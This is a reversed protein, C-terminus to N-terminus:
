DVAITETNFSNDDSSGTNQNIESKDEEAKKATDGGFYSKQKILLIFVGVTIASDAINFIPSFFTFPGIVPLDATFLPFYLMDVVDGQLFGAYGGGTPMFAAPGFYSDSFILGYIASDIINGAAGALILSIAVILGTQAKRKVLKVLYWSIFFIAVVRFLSLFIKGWHSGQGGIEIGFAMGRNETFHLRFWDGFIHVEEDLTFSTKVWLKLTQDILLVLFITLLAKKM